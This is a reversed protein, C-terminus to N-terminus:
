AKFSFTNSKIESNNNVQITYTGSKDWGSGGAIALTSFRGNNKIPIAESWILQGDQNKISLNVKESTNSTGSISIIDGKQYTALDTKISLSTPSTDESVIQSDNSEINLIGTLSMSIIILMVFTAGGVGLLIKTNKSTSKRNKNPKSYLSEVKQSPTKSFIVDPVIPKETSQHKEEIQKDQIQPIRGLYKEALSRVYNREYNSIVENNECARYIQKLIREDGKEKDLLEKVDDILPDTM